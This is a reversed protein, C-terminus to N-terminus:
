QQEQARLAKLKELYAVRARLELNEQELRELDSMARLQADSKKPPRGRSKPRLGAEGEREYMRAWVTVTKPSGLNFEQALALKSEGALFRQVVELKVDFPYRKQTSRPVLADSGRVQWRRYIDELGRGVGLRTSVASPGYGEEFLAIVASRQQETLLSDKRM